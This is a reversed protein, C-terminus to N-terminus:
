YGVLIESITPKVTRMAPDASSFEHDAPLATVADPAAKASAKLSVGSKCGGAFTALAGGDWDSVRAVGSKDFGKLKFPKGNLKELQPLSLGLRIRGPAIWDSQGNIVILFTDKRLDPKSWWVELRRRPDKPFLVSAEVTKGSGADVETFTVNRSDYVMALRLHSSDKGFAGSCTVVDPRARGSRGAAVPDATANAAHKVARHTSHGFGSPESVAAPIPQKVQSPALQDDADLNPDPQLAPTATHTHTRPAAAPPTQDDPEENIISPQAPSAQQALLSGAPSIAVSALVALGIWRGHM